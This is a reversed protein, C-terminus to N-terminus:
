FLCFDPIHKRRSAQLKLLQLAHAPKSSHHQLQLSEHLLAGGLDTTVAQDRPPAWAMGTVPQDNSYLSYCQLKKRM